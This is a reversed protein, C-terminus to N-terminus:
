PAIQLVDADVARYHPRGYPQGQVGDDEGQGSGPHGLSPRVRLGGDGDRGTAGCHLWRAVARAQVARTTTAPGYMGFVHDSLQGSIRSGRNRSPILLYLVGEAATRPPEEQATESRDCGNMVPKETVAPLSNNYAVTGATM